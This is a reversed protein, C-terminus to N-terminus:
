KSAQSQQSPSKRLCPLQISLQIPIEPTTESQPKTPITTCEPATQPMTAAPNSFEPSSTAKLQKLPSPAWSSTSKSLSHSTKKLAMQSDSPTARRYILSLHRISPTSLIRSCMQCSRSMSKSSSTSPELRQSRQTALPVMKSRWSGTNARKPV